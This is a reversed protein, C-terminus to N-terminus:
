KALVGPGQDKDIVRCDLDHASVQDHGGNVPDLGRRQLREKPGQRGSAEATVDYDECTRYARGRYALKAFPPGPHHWKM